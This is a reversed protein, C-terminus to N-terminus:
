ATANENEAVSSASVTLRKSAGPMWETKPKACQPPLM